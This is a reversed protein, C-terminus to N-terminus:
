RERKKLAEERGKAEKQNLQDQLAKPLRKKLEFYNLIKLNKKLNLVVGKLSLPNKQFREKQGETLGAAQVLDQKDAYNPGVASENVIKVEVVQAVADFGVVEIAAGKQIPNETTGVAHLQPSFHLCILIILKLGMM